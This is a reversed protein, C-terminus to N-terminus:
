LAAAYVENFVETGPLGPLPVRKHGPLRVYRRTKGHRDRFEHIYNLRIKTM